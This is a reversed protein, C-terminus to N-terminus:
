GLGNCILKAMMMQKSTMFLVGEKFSILGNSILPLCEEEVMMPPNDRKLHEMPITAGKFLTMIIRDSFSM